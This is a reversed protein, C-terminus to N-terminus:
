HLLLRVSKKVIGSDKIQGSSVRSSKELEECDGKEQEGTEKMMPSRAEEEETQIAEMELKAWSREKPQSRASSLRSNPGSSLTVSSRASLTSPSVSDSTAPASISSSCSSGKAGALSRLSVLPLSSGTPGSTGHALIGANSLLTVAREVLEIDALTTTFGHSSSSEELRFCSKVGMKAPRGLRSAMSSPRQFADLRSILSRVLLELLERLLRLM